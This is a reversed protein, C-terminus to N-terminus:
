VQQQGAEAGAEDRDTIELYVFEPQKRKIMSTLRISGDSLKKLFGYKRDALQEVLPGESPDLFRAKGPIQPGKEKGSASSAAVLVRPDRRIRKAKWTQAGTRVLLRRGDDSMVWVATSATSGDRKYTTISIFREETLSSVSM